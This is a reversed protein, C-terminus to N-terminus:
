CSFLPMLSYTLTPAALILLLGSPQAILLPNTGSVVCRLINFCLKHFNYVPELLPIFPLPVVQFM